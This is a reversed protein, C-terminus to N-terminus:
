HAFIITNQLSINLIYKMQNLWWVRKQNRNAHVLKETKESLIWIQFAVYLALRLINNLKICPM